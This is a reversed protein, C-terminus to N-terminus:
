RDEGRGQTSESKGHVNKRPHIKEVREIPHIKTLSIKPDFSLKTDQKTFQTNIHINASLFLVILHFLLSKINVNESKNVINQEWFYVYIYTACTQSEINL